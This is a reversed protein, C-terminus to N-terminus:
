GRMHNGSRMHAAAPKIDAAAPLPLQLKFCAGQGNGGPDVSLDGGHNQAITRSIALGLGLGRRKSSSFAKFLNPLLEPAIGPGNDVVTVVVAGDANRTEVEIEPPRQERIADLANRLLNVVVQQIQVPDVLVQPLDEALKRGIRTGPPSGLLTLEIADEVLPNLDVLQRVLDHKEVFHRMRHIIDGAREAEHVAKDLIALTQLSLGAGSVQKDAARSVAQLYLMLATLPQNLEHALAAGMEDMASIRAMRLLDGQLQTLRQEVELRPSLDRLIVVYQRGEPTLAEGVTFELPFLSGNKRRGRMERGPGDRRPAGVSALDTDAASDPSEEGSDKDPPLITALSRGVVEAATYGFLRECAKNFVLIQLHDDLVAIGDGAIDLVSSLRVESVSPVAIRSDIVL